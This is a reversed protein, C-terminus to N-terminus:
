RPVPPDDGERPRSNNQADPDEKNILYVVENTIIRCTLTDFVTNGQKRAKNRLSHFKRQFALSDNTSLELGFESAKAQLM